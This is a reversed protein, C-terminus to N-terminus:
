GYIARRIQRISMEPGVFRREKLERQIQRYIQDNNLGDSHLERHRDSIFYKVDKSFHDGLEEVLRDLLSGDIPYISLLYNKFQEDLSLKAM